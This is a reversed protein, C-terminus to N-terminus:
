ALPEVHLIEPKKIINFKNMFVICNEVMSRDEPDFPVAYRRGYEQTYMHLHSGSIKTGDPNLHVSTPSLHLELLQTGDKTRGSINCKRVEVTGRFIYVIFIDRKTDGIVEFERKKGASPFGIAEQTSNKLMEILRRAEEDTLCSEYTPM